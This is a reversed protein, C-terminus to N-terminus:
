KSWKAMLSSLSLPLSVMLRSDKKTRIGPTDQSLWTMVSIIELNDYEGGGLLFGGVGVGSVRAGAVSRNYPALANYIDGFLLGSGFEM